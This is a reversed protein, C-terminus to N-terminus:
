LLYNQDDINKSEKLFCSIKSYSYPISYIILNYEQKM